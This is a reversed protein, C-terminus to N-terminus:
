ATATMSFRPSPKIDGQRSGFRRIELLLTQAGGFAMQTGLLLISPLSKDPM